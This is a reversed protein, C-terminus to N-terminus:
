QYRRGTDRDRLTIGDLELNVLNLVKEVTGIVGRIHWPVRGASSIAKEATPDRYGEHNMSYGGEM